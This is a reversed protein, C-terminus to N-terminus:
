HRSRKRPGAPSMTVPKRGTDAERRRIFKLERQSEPIDKSRGAVRAQCSLPPVVTVSELAVHLGSTGPVM